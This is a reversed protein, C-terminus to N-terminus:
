LEIRISPEATQGLDTADLGGADALDDGISYVVGRDKAYRLPAGDFADIPIAELYTPVLQELRDPLAGTASQHARLAIALQVLGLKADNHCRRVDFREFSPM